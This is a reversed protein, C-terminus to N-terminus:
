SLSLQLWRTTTDQRMQSWSCRVTSCSWPMGLVSSSGCATEQVNLCALAYLCAHKVCECVRAHQTSVTNPHTYVHMCACISSVHMGDAGACMNLRCVFMRVSMWFTKNAFMCGYMGLNTLAPTHAPHISVAARLHHEAQRSHDQSQDMIVGLANHADLAAADNVPLALVGYLVHAASKTDGAAVLQEALGMRAEIDFPRLRVCMRYVRIHDRPNLAAAAPHALACVADWHAPDGEGAVGISRTWLCYLCLLAELRQWRCALILQMSQRKPARSSGSFWSARSEM